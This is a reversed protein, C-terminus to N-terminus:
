NFPAFKESTYHDGGGVLYSMVPPHLLEQRAMMSNVAATVAGTAAKEPNSLDVDSQTKRAVHCLAALGVHMPLGPKTIYDTVYYVFAKAAEGSGVFQVNMNCQLLTVIDTYASVLPHHRRLIIGKTEEDLVTIDQTRGDMGLWCNEDTKEEGQKLCKWCTAQHIHWNYEYLLQELVYGYQKWFRDEDAEFLRIKGMEELNVDVGAFLRLIPHNVDAPNLTVFLSPTGRQYIIARIKNQLMVKYGDSGPVHRAIMRLLQYAPNIRCLDNLRALVEPDVDLLSRLVLDRSKYPIAFRLSNSVAQKRLVNYFVFVFEPDREFRNDDISLLYRVQEEMSIKRARKPHHFGGVGWPHSLCRALAKAKMDKYSIPSNDGDTYSANEMLIEEGVSSDTVQGDENRPAYDSTGINIAENPQLPVIEMSPPVGEDKNGQLLGRLNEQSVGFWLAPRYHENKALLFDILKKICSQRVLIPLPAVIINGRIGKRARALVDVQSAKNDGCISTTNFWFVVSNARARSIMMQDFMSSAKLAASIDLPLADHGYYLWNCLAFKPMVGASLSAYCEKCIWMYAMCRLITLERIFEENMEMQWEQIIQRKLERDLPCFAEDTALIAEKFQNVLPPQKCIKPVLSRGLLVEDALFHDKVRKRARDLGDFIYLIELCQQGGQHLVQVFAYLSNFRLVPISLYAGGTAYSASELEESTLAILMAPYQQLSM